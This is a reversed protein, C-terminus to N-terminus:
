LNVANTLFDGEHNQSTCSRHRNFRRRTSDRGNRVHSQTDDSRPLAKSCRNCAVMGMGMRRCHYAKEAIRLMWRYYFFFFFFNLTLSCPQIRLIFTILNCSVCYIIFLIISYDIFLLTDLCNGIKLPILLNRKKCLIRAYEYENTTM